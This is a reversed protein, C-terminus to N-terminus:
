DPVEENGVVEYPLTPQGEADLRTRLGGPACVAPLDPLANGNCRYFLGATGPIEMNPMSKLTENITAPTIDGTMGGVAQFFALWEAYMNQAKTLDELEGDGYTEYIAQLQQYGADEEDGIPTSVSVYTGDLYAGVADRTADTVCVFLTSIPGDFAAAELGQFASICFTDNGVIQVVTPDGNAIETMQPTFDPQSPPLAVMELEIGAEDFPEQGADSSYLDTAAPVDIVVPTVKELDDSEAVSIPLASVGLRPNFLVYTSDPDGVVSASTISYLWLPLDVQSTVEHVAAVTTAEPMLIAVVGDQILQNACENAKSPNANGTECNHLEVPRGGIGGQHQNQYEFLAESVDVQFLNDINADTGDSIMGIKIPEGRAVDEPGLLSETDEGGGDGGSAGNGGDNGSSDDGCAAALLLVTIGVAAARRLGRGAARDANIPKRM